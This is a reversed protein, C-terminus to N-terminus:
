SASGTAKAVAARAAAYKEPEGEFDASNDPELDILSQLAALLELMSDGRDLLREAIRRQMQQRDPDPLFCAAGQLFGADLM